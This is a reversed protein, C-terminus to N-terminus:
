DISLKRIRHKIYETVYINGISDLAIGWLGRFTATAVPGDADGFGGLTVKKVVGEPSIKRISNNYGDIVFLNGDKAIAISTPNFFSAATGIGDSFGPQTTGAFASVIGVSIKRVTHGGNDIVFVNQDKDAVVGIPNVFSANAAPGNISAFAGNGAITIVQGNSIKRIKNSQLDAVFVNFLSDIYVGYPQYFTATAIPGDISGTINDGGAFKSVVAGPTVKRIRNMMADCAYLNNNRDIGLGWLENFRANSGIGNTTDSLGPAGAFTTVIGAPTIKRITFNRSDCVFVNGLDDVAIGSPYNFKAAIGTGDSSGQSGGAITSVVYSTDYTFVPGTYPIGNQYLVVNGSGILRPIQTTVQTANVTGLITKKGNILVSDITGNSTFAAGTITLSTGNGGHTPSISIITLSPGPPPPPPPPPTPDNQRSCGVVVFILLFSKFLIRVQEM